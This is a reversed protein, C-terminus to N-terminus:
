HSHKQNKAHTHREIDTGKKNPVGLISGIMWKNSTPGTIPQGLILKGPNTRSLPLYDRDSINVPKEMVGYVADVTLINNNDVWSFITWSLQNSLRSNTRFRKLINNIYEKDEPKEQIQFGILNMIYETNNIIDVFTREVKSMAVDLDKSIQEKQFQTYFFISTIFLTVLLLSTITYFTHKNRFPIFCYKIIQSLFITM